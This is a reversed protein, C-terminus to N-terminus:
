EIGGRRRRPAKTKAEIDEEHREHPVLHGFFSYLKKDLMKKNEEENGDMIRRMASGHFSGDNVAELYAMVAGIQYFLVGFFFTLPVGYEAEGPFESGPVQLPGWSFAGGIVFVASGITYSWGSWFAMDWYPFTTFMKMLTKGGRFLGSTLSKLPTEPPASQPVAISNRGKRNDRARWLLDLDKVSDGIQEESGGRVRIHMRVHTPNFLKSSVSSTKISDLHIKRAASRMKSTFMAMKDPEIGADNDSATGLLLEGSSTGATTEAKESKPGKPEASGDGNSSRSSGSHDTAAFPDLNSFPVANHANAAEPLPTM